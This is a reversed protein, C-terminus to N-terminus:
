GGLGQVRVVAPAAPDPADGADIVELHVVEGVLVHAWAGLDATAVVGAIPYGGMTGADPGLLMWDGSPLVQVAGPLVGLSPLDSRVRTVRARWGARPSACVSGPPSWCASTAPASACTRGRSWACGPASTGSGPRLGGGDWVHLDRGPAAPRRDGRAGTRDTRAPLHIAVRAGAAPQFGRAVSLYARGEAHVEVRAGGPVDLATWAPLQGSRRCDGDRARHGRLDHAPGAGGRDKRRGRPLGARHDRGGPRDCRRSRDRDFAGSVPVGSDVHHRGADQFLASGSLGVVLLGAM